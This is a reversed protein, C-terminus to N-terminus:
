MKDRVVAALTETKECKANPNNPDVECDTCYGDGTGIVRRPNCGVNCGKCTVVTATTSIDFGDAKRDLLYATKETNDKNSVILQVIETKEDDIAKSVDIELTSMDMESARSAGMNKELRTILKKKDTFVIEGKEMKAVITAQETKTSSKSSTESESNSQKTDKNGCSFLFLVGLMLLLRCTKTTNM